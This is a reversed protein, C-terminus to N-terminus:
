FSFSGRRSNNGRSRNGFLRNGLIANQYADAAEDGNLGTSFSPAVIVLEDANAIGQAMLASVVIERRISDLEDNFHVPYHHTTQWKKSTRSRELIVNFPFEGDEDCAARLINAIQRVHEQGDPTLRLGRVRMPEQYDFGSVARKDPGIPENQQLNIEFEHTYIVLKALEANEEQAV